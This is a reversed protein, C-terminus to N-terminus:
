FFFSSNKTLFTYNLKGSLTMETELYRVMRAYPQRIKQRLSLAISSTPNWPTQVSEKLTEVFVQM